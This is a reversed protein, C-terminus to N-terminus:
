LSQTLGGVGSVLWGWMRAMWFHRMTLFMGKKLGDCCNGNIAL